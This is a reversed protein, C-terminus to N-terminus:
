NENDSKALEPHEDAYVSARLQPSKGKYKNWEDLVEKSQPRGVSKNQPAYNFEDDEICDLENMKEWSIRMFDKSFLIILWWVHTLSWIICFITAVWVDIEERKHINEIPSWSTIGVFANEFILLTLMIFGELLYYDMITLYNVKPLQETIVYRFAVATLMLTVSISLKDSIFQKDEDDIMIPFSAFAAVVILCNPIIISAFYFGPQREVRLRISLPQEGTFDIWPSLMEYETISSLM